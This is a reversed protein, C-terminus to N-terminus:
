QYRTSKPEVLSGLDRLEKAIAPPLTEQTKSRSTDNRYITRSRIENFSQSNGITTFM